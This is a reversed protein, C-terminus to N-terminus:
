RKEISKIFADKVTIEKGEMQVPYDEPKKFMDVLMKVEEKKLQYFNDILKQWEKETLLEVMKLPSVLDQPNAGKYKEIFLKKAGEDGFLMYIATISYYQDKEQLWLFEKAKKPADESIEGNQAGAFGYGIKGIQGDFPEKFVWGHNELVKLQLETNILAPNIDLTDDRGSKGLAKETEDFFAEESPYETLLQHLIRSTRGNGDAFFHVANVMAPLLYKIDEKEVDPIAKYAYELLEEKDSHKPVVEDGLDGKIYITEGDASRKSTPLKRVIGNLRVLFDKFEKFDPTKEKGGTIEKARDYAHIRKLFKIVKQAQEARFEEESKKLPENEIGHESQQEGKFKSM